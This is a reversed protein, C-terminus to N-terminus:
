ATALTATFGNRVRAAAIPRYSAVANLIAVACWPTRNKGSDATKRAMPLHAAIDTAAGIRARTGLGAFRARQPWGRSVM